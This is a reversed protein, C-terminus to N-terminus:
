VVRLAASGGSDRTIRRVHPEWAAPPVAVRAVRAHTSRSAVTAGSPQPPPLPDAGSEAALGAGAAENVKEGAEGDAPWVTCNVSVVVPLGVAHDHSKPSPPVLV